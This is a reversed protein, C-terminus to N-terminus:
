PREGRTRRMVRGLQDALERREAANMTEIQDLLATHGTEQLLVVMGRSRAFAEEVAARDFPEARLAEDVVRLARGIERRNERLEVGTGEIRTRLEARDQRSLARAFPALGLARLAPAGSDRSGGSGLVAGGIVGVVAVNVALSIALAIKVSRGTRPKKDESM